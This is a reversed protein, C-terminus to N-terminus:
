SHDHMGTGAGMGEVYLEIEIKAGSSLMLTVPIMEEQLLPRKLGILMLHLGGSKLEVTGGPEIDVSPVPRMRMVGGDMSMSHIEVREAVPTSGGVLTLPIKGTNTLKMYGVATTAGPPTARTWPHVVKLGAGTYDHAAAAGFSLTLVVIVAAIVSAFNM